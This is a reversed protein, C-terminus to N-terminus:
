NLSLDEAVWCASSHAEAVPVLPPIELACKGISYTCRERFSCGSPLNALDPPQGDIPNLKEKRPLDLRPVSKLLGMTYPHKPNQYIEAALGSEV